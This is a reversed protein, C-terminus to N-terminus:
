EAPNNTAELVAKWKKAVGRYAAMYTEELPVHVYFEPALFLPMPVLERGVAMPKVFAEKIPGASYTALTLPEDAPLEFPQDSIQEWIAGHIGQPDRCTPPFLDVVLLHYGQALAELAKGVFADFAKKSTKNGRSVIEILAVIRDGSAHRIVLTRRKSLYSDMEAQASWRTKPPAMVVVTGGDGDLNAREQTQLTLVDPGFPGTYQEAQAYFAQPLLGDNLAIQIESLWSVHFAHFTGDSVRTWDHIPM